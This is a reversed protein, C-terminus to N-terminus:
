RNIKQYEFTTLRIVSRSLPIYAPLFPPGKAKRVSARLANSVRLVVNVVVSIRTWKSGVFRMRMSVLADPNAILATM